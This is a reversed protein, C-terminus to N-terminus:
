SPRSWKFVFILNTFKAANSLGLDKKREILQGAPMTTKQEYMHQFNGILKRIQETLKWHPYASIAASDSDLLVWWSTRRFPYLRSVDKPAPREITKAANDWDMCTYTNNKM